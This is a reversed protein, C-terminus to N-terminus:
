AVLASAYRPCKQPASRLHRNSRLPSIRCQNRQRGLDPLRVADIGGGFCHNRHSQRSDPGQEVPCLGAAIQGPQRAGADKACGGRMVLPTAPDPDPEDAALLHNLASETAEWVFYGAAKPDLTWELIGRAKGTADPLATWSISPPEFNVAPPFPDMTRILAGIFQAASDTPDSFEGPRISEAATVYLAYDLETAVSFDLMFGIIEVRYVVRPEDGDFDATKLVAVSEAVSHGLNITPIKVSPAVTSAEANSAYAFTLTAPPTILGGSAMQMGELLALGLGGAPAPVFSGTFRIQGPSRDRWDWAFDIQLTAPVVNGAAAALDLIFQASRIGPKAIPAPSLTASALSWSSWQGFVDVGAVQYRTNNDPPALPLATATDSFSPLQFEPPTSPDSSIPTIGVFPLYGGVDSPRPSNLVESENPSRSALVGYGQPTTPPIWSVQIVAPAGGDRVVPAHIDKVTAKLGLPAEVAPQGASLAAFEEKLGFPFIFPAAVMYDWDGYNNVAPYVPSPLPSSQIRPPIDTTGYGLAVAPFCDTSVAVMAVGTIPLQGKTVQDPDTTAGPLSAQKIGPLTVDEMYLSQMKAPNSDDSDSLCREIMPVFSQSSRIWEIYKDPDPLPWPPVPFDAIGTGPPPLHLLAAIGTRQQAATLGDLAPPEFGQPLTNYASGPEGDKFPLGVTEINQWDPFNAYANEGVAEIQGVTGAGSARIAFIGPCRFEMSSTGAVTVSQGTIPLSNIDLAELTVGFGSSIADPVTTGSTSPVFSIQDEDPIGAPRADPHFEAPALSMAVPIAPSADAVQVNLTLTNQYVTPTAASDTVRLVLTGSESSTPPISFSARRTDDHWLHEVSGGAPTFDASFTFPPIGGEIQLYIVGTPPMSISGGTWTRGSATGANVPLSQKGDFATVNVRSPADSFLLDLEAELWVQGAFSILADRVAFNLLSIKIRM